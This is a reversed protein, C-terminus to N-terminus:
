LSYEIDLDTTYFVQLTDYTNATRTFVIDMNNNSDLTASSVSYVYNDNVKLITYISVSPVGGGETHAHVFQITPAAGAVSVFMLWTRTYAGFGGDMKVKINLTSGNSRFNVNTCKLPLEKTLALIGDKDPFRITRNVNLATSYLTTMKGKYSFLNIIGTSNKDTGTGYGNGINLYTFGEASATGNLKNLTINGTINGGQKLNVEEIADQVNDSLLGGGQHPHLYLIKHM